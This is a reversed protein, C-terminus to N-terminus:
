SPSARGRRRRRALLAAGGTAGAIILLPTITAEPTVVAAATCTQGTLSTGSTQQLFMPRSVAGTPDTTTEGSAVM